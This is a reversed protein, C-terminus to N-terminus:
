FAIGVIVFALMISLVLGGIMSKIIENHRQKAKIHRYYYANHEADTKFHKIKM